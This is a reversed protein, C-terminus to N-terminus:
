NKSLPVKVISLPFCTRNNRMFSKGFYFHMIHTTHYRLSGLTIDSLQNDVIHKHMAPLSYKTEVPERKDTELNIQYLTYRFKM